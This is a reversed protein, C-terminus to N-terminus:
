IRSLFFTNPYRAAWLSLAEETAVERRCGLFNPPLNQGSSRRLGTSVDLFALRWTHRAEGLKRSPLSSISTQKVCTLVGPRTSVNRSSKIPGLVWQSLITGSARIEHLKARAAMEQLSNALNPQVRFKYAVKIRPHRM